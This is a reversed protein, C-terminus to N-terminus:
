GAMPFVGFIADSGAHVVYGHNPHDVGLGALYAQRFNAFCAGIVAAIQVISRDM